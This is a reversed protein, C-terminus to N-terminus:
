ESAPEAEGASLQKADDATVDITKDGARKLPPEFSVVVEFGSAGPAGLEIRQVSRGEVAERVDKRASWGGKQISERAAALAIGDGWTSGPRLTEGTPDMAKRVKEPLPSELLEAYRDSLPRKKPRGGPNGSRGPEFPKLNALSAESPM